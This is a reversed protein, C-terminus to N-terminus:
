NTLEMIASVVDGNVAMLAEVARSRLMFVQTMVLELDKKDVDTDDVEEDDQAAVVSPEGQILKQWKEDEAWQISEDSGLAGKTLAVKIFCVVPM